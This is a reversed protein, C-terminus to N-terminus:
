QAAFAAFPEFGDLPGSHAFALRKIESARPALRTELKRLSALNEGPDKAFLTFGQVMDHDKHAVAADGFFLIGKALYVASGPTHGPVLFAEVTLDGLTTITGDHLTDTVTAAAGIVPIEEAMAYVKAAPFQKCGATHDPHGHTLFIAVVDSEHLGRAALAAKIADGAKDNGCDVLAVKGPAVDLLTASVISDKVTEVGQAPHGHDEIPLNRGFVVYFFIGAVAALVAVLVLLVKVLTKV